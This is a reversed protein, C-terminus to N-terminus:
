DLWTRKLDMEGPPPLAEVTMATASDPAATEPTPAARIPAALVISSPAKAAADEDRQPAILRPAAATAPETVPTLLLASLIKDPTPEDRRPAVLRLAPVVEPRKDLLAAVWDVWGPPLTPAPLGSFAQEVTAALRARASHPVPLAIIPLEGPFRRPLGEDRLMVQLADRAEDPSAVQGEDLFAVLAIGRAPHLAALDVPGEEGYARILAGPLCRWGPILAQAEPQALSNGGNGAAPLAVAPRDLTQETM